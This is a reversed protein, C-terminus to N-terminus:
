MVDLLMFILSGRRKNTVSKSDQVQTNKTLNTLKLLKNIRKKIESFLKVCNTNVKYSIANILKMRAPYNQNCGYTHASYTVYHM